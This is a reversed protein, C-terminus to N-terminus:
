EFIKKYQIIVKYILYKVSLYRYLIMFYRIRIRPGTSIDTVVLKLKRYIM